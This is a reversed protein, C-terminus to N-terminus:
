FVHASPMDSRAPTDIRCAEHLLTAIPTQLYRGKRRHQRALGPQASSDAGLGCYVREGSSSTVTIFEGAIDAANRAPLGSTSPLPPQVPADRPAEAPPQLPVSAPQDAPGGSPSATAPMATAHSTSSFARPSHQEPCGRQTGALAMAILERDEDDLAEETRPRKGAPWTAIKVEQCLPALQGTAVTCYAHAFRLKSPTQSASGPTNLQIEQLPRKSVQM